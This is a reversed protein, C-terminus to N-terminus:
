SLIGGVVLAVAVVLEEVVAMGLYVGPSGDFLYFLSDTSFAMLLQYVMRVALLPLSAICVIVLHKQYLENDYKSRLAWFAAADILAVFGPVCIVASSALVNPTTYTGRTEFSHGAQLVGVIGLIFSVTLATTVIIEHYAPTMGLFHKPHRSKMAGLINGMNFLVALFLPNLGIWTCLRGGVYLNLSRLTGKRITSLQMAAGVLRIVTFFCLFMWPLIRGHGRRACLSLSVLLIPTYIALMAISIRDLMDLTSSM